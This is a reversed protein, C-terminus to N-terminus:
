CAIAEKGVTDQPWSLCLLTGQADLAKSLRADGGLDRCIQRIAGLGVGRGSTESVERATSSGEEFLLNILELESEAKSGRIRALKRLELFDLGYGGDTLEVRVEQGDQYARVRLSVARPPM